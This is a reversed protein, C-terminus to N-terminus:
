ILRILYEKTIEPAKQYALSFLQCHSTADNFFVPNDVMYPIWKIWESDKIQSVVDVQESALLLAMCISFVDFNWSGQGFWEDSPPSYNVIFKHGAQEVRVQDTKDLAKWGPSEKLNIRGVDKLQGTDQDIWLNYTLKFWQEVSGLEISKLLPEIREIVPPVRSQRKAKLERHLRQTYNEKFRKSLNSDLEWSVLYEKQLVPVRLRVELFDSIWQVPLDPNFTELILRAWVVQEPGLANEIETLMWPFDSDSLLPMESMLILTADKESLRGNTIMYKVILHRKEVESGMEKWPNSGEDYHDSFPGHVASLCIHDSLEALLLPDPLCKLSHRLIENYIRGFNLSDYTSDASIWGKTIALAKAIQDAPAGKKLQEPLEYHLFYSYAGVLNKNKVPTLNEFLRSVCWHSPWMCKLGYAKLEDDPDAGLKGEALPELRRKTDEDAIECIAQAAQARLRVTESM